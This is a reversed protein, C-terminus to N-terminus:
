LLINEQRFSLLPDSWKYFNPEVLLPSGLGAGDKVRRGDFRFVKQSIPRERSFPPTTFVSPPPPYIEHAWFRSSEQLLRSAWDSSSDYLLLSERSSRGFLPYVEPLTGSPVDPSSDIVGSTSSEVGRAWAGCAVIPNRKLNRTQGKIM